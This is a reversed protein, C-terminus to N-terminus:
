LSHIRHEEKELKQKLRQEFETVKTVNTRSMDIEKKTQSTMKDEVALNFSTLKDINMLLNNQKRTSIVFFENKEEAQQCIQEGLM